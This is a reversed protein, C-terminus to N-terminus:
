CLTTKIYWKLQGISLIRSINQIFYIIHFQLECGPPYMGYCPENSTHVCRILSSTVKYLQIKNASGMGVFIEAYHWPTLFPVWEVGIHYVTNLNDVWFCM